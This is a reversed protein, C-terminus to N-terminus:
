SRTAVVMWEAAIQAAALATVGASDYVPAVEVVDAGVWDIGDLAGVIDIAEGTGLGGAVPTGTGPASSPDLADIDFTLYAPGAGVHERVAAITAATGNARVWPADLIRVGRTDPNFTRIGVQISRDRDILGERLAHVFMSGHNLDDDSTPEWTDTHADFHVLAVPGHKEAIARLVPYTVYHDGGLTLPRCGAGVIRRLHATIADRVTLPNHLDLIVDGTDVASLADLWVGSPYHEGQAVMLSMERVAAPGFRAGPRNTTAIDFPIGVVAIDAEAWGAPDLVAPLRFMTRFGAYTPTLPEDQTEM